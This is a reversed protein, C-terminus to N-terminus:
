NKLIIFVLYLLDLFNSSFQEIDFTFTSKVSLFQKNFAFSLLFAFNIQLFFLM